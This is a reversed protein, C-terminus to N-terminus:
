KNWIRQSRKWIPEWISDLAGRGEKSTFYQVAESLDGTLGAAISGGELALAPAAGIGTVAAGAASVVLAAEVSYLAAQVKDQWNAGPERAEKLARSANQMTFYSSLLGAKHRGLGMRIRQLNRVYDATDTARLATDLEGGGALAYKQGGGGEEFAFVNRGADIEEPSANYEPRLNFAQAERDRQTQALVKDANENYSLIRAKDVENVYGRTHGDQLYARLANIDTDGADIRRRNEDTQGEFEHGVNRHYPELSVQSAADTVRNRAELSHGKSFGKKGIQFDGVKKKNMESVLKSMQQKDRKLSKLFSEESYKNGYDDVGEPWQVKTNYPNELDFLAKSYEKSPINQQLTRRADSLKKRKQNDETTEVRISDKLPEFTYGAPPKGLGKIGRAPVGDMIQKKNGQLGAAKLERRKAKAKERFKKAEDSIGSSKYKLSELKSEYYDVIQQWRSNSFRSQENYGEQTYAM